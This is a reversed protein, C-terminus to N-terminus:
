ATGRQSDIDAADRLGLTQQRPDNRVLNADRDAFFVSAPKDPKPAKVDVDDTVEFHAYASADSPTLKVKLVLTGAKGTVQCAEVLETIADSLEDHLAGRRQERLWDAFPRVQREGAEKVDSM